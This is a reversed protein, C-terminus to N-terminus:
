ALDPPGQPPCAIRLARDVGVPAAGSPGPEVRSSRQSAFVSRAVQRDQAIHNDFGVLVGRVVPVVQDIALQAKLPASADLASEVRRAAGAVATGECLCAAVLAVLALASTFRAQM